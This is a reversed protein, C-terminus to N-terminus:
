VSKAYNRSSTFGNGLFLCTKEPPGSTLVASNSKPNKHTKKGEEPQLTAANRWWGLGMVSSNSRESM